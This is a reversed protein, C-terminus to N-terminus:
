GLYPTGNGNVQVGALAILAFAIVVTVIVPIIWVSPRIRPNDPHWDSTRAKLHM